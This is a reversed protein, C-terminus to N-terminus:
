GPYGGFEALTVTPPNIRKGEAVNERFWRLAEGVVRLRDAPAARTVARRVQAPLLGWCNLCSLKHHPVASGCGGPCAHPPDVQVTTTDAM